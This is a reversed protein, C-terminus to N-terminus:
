LYASHSIFINRLPKRVCAPLERTPDDTMNVPPALWYDWIAIDAPTDWRCENALSAEWKGDYAHGSPCTYGIVTTLFTGNSIDDRDWLRTGLAPVTTVNAPEM